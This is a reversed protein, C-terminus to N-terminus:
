KCYKCPTKAALLHALFSQAAAESKRMLRAGSFVGFERMLVFEEVYKLWHREAMQWDEGHKSVWKAIFARWTRRADPPFETLRLYYDTLTRPLRDSKVTLGTRVKLIASHAIELRM